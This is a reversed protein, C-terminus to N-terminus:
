KLREDGLWVFDRQSFCENMTVQVNFAVDKRDELNRFVDEAMRARQPQLNQLLCIRREITQALPELVARPM